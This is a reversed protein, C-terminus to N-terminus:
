VWLQELSRTCYLAANLCTCPSSNGDTSDKMDFYRKSQGAARSRIRSPRGMVMRSSLFVDLSMASVTASKMVVMSLSRRSMLAMSSSWGSTFSRESPRELSLTRGGLKSPLAEMSLHSWIRLSIFTPSSNPSVSDLCISKSM